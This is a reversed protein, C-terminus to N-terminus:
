GRDIDPFTIKGELFQFVREFRAQSVSDLKPVWDVRLVGLRRAVSARAMPRLQRPARTLRRLRELQKPEDPSRRGLSDVKVLRCLEALLRQHVVSPQMLALQAKVEPGLATAFRARQDCWSVSKGVRKAIDVLAMGKAKLRVIQEGIEWPRLDERATNEALQVLMLDVSDHDRITTVLVSVLRDPAPPGGREAAQRDRELLLGFAAYRRGGAVVLLKANEPNRWVILPTLQGLEAISNALSEINRFNWRVQNEVYLQSYPVHLRELEITSM